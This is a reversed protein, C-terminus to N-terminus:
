DGMQMRHEVLLRVIEFDEPGDLDISRSKPMVYGKLGPGYFSGYKLFADVKAWYTSGNDAVMFPVEQTKKQILDPWIPELHGSPSEKLAQWPPLSYGTVAMVFNTDPECLLQAAGLIDRGTRLPATAYLCCFSQIGDREEQLHQLVNKCVEKVTATDAALHAPREIIRAGWFEAIEAVEPDETSVIVEEFIEAELAAEITYAILPEGAIELINKRPLRKSGGRAPIIAVCPCIAEIGNNNL